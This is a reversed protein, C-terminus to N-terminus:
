SLLTGLCCPSKTSHKTDSAPLSKYPLSARGPHHSVGLSKQLFIRCYPVNLASSGSLLKVKETGLRPENMRQNYRSSWEHELM